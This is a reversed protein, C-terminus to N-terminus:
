NDVPLSEHLWFRGGGESFDSATHDIGELVWKTTLLGEVGM